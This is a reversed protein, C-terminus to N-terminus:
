KTKSHVPKVSLNVMEINFTNRPLTKLSRYLIMRVFVLLACVAIVIGMICCLAVALEVCFDRWYNARLICQEEMVWEGKGEVEKCTFVMEGYGKTRECPVSRTTGISAMKLRQM